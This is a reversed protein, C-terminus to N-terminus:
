GSDIFIWVLDRVDKVWVGFIWELDMSYGYDRMFGYSVVAVANRECTM